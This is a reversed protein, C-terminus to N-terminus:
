KTFKSSLCCCNNNDGRDTNAPNYPLLQKKKQKARNRRVARRSSFAAAPIEIGSNYPLRQARPPRQSFTAREHRNIM